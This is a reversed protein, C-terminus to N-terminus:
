KQMLSEDTEILHLSKARRVWHDAKLSREFVPIAHEVLERAVHRIRDENRVRKAEQEASERTGKRRELAAYRLRTMEIMRAQALVVQSMPRVLADASPLPDPLSALSQKSFVIADPIRQLLFSTRALYGLGRAAQTSRNGFLALRKEHLDLATDHLDTVEAVDSALAFLRRGEPDEFREIKAAVINGLNVLTFAHEEKFIGIRWTLSEELLRMAKDYDGARNGRVLHAAYQCQFLSVVFEMQGGVAERLKDVVGEYEDLTDDLTDPDHAKKELMRARLTLLQIPESNIRSEAWKYRDEAAAFKARAHSGERPYAALSGAIDTVLFVASDSLPERPEDEIATTGFDSWEGNSVLEVIEEMRVRIPERDVSLPLLVRLAEFEARYAALNESEDKLLAFQQASTTM